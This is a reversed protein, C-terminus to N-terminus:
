KRFADLFKLREANKRKEDHEKDKEEVLIMKLAQSHYEIGTEAKYAERCAKIIDRQIDAADPSLGTIAQARELAQKRTLLTAKGDSTILAVLPGKSRVRVIKM